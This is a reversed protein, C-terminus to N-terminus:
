IEMVERYLAAGGLVAIDDGQAEKMAPSVKEVAGIIDSM